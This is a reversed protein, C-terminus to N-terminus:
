CCMNHPYLVLKLHCTFSLSSTMYYMCAGNQDLSYFNGGSIVFPLPLLTNTFNCLVYHTLSPDYCGVGTQNLQIVLMRVTCM